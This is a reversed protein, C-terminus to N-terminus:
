LKGLYTRPLKLNSNCSCYENVANLKLIYQSLLYKGQHSNRGELHKQVCETNGRTDDQKFTSCLTKIPTKGHEKRRGGLVQGKRNDGYYVESVFIIIVEQIAIPVNPQFLHVMGGANVM